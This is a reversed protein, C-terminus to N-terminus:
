PIEIILLDFHQFRHRHFVSPLDRESQNADHNEDPGNYKHYDPNQKSSSCNQSRGTLRNLKTMLQVRLCFNRTQEAVGICHPRINCSDGGNFTTCTAVSGNGIFPIFNLDQHTVPFSLLGDWPLWDYLHRIVHEEAM